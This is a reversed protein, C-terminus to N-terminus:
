LFLRSAGVRVHKKTERNPTEFGRTQFKCKRGSRSVGDAGSFMTAPRTVLSRREPTKMTEDRCANFSNFAEMSKPLCRDFEPM